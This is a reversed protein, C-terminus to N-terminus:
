VATVGWRETKSLLAAAGPFGYKSVRVDTEVAAGDM